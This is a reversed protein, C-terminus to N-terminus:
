GYGKDWGRHGNGGVPRLSHAKNCTSPTPRKAQYTGDAFKCGETEVEYNDDWQWLPPSYLIPPHASM